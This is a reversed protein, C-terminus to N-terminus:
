DDGPGCSHYDMIMDTPNIGPTEIVSAGERRAANNIYIIIEYM